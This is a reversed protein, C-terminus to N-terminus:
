IGLSDCQSYAASQARRCHSAILVVLGVPGHLFGLSHSQARGRHGFTGLYIRSGRLYRKYIVVGHSEASDGRYGEVPLGDGCLHAFAAGNNGLHSKGGPLSVLEVNRGIGNRSHASESESRLKSDVKGGLGARGYARGLNEAKDVGVGGLLSSLHVIKDYLLM